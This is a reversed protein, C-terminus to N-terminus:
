PSIDLVTKRRQDLDKKLFALADKDNFMRNDHLYIKKAFSCSATKTDLVKSWDVKKNALTESWDIENDCLSLLLLSYCELAEFLASLLPESSLDFGGLFLEKLAPNENALTHLANIFEQMSKRTICKIPQIANKSSEPDCTGEAEAKGRAAEAATQSRRTARERARAQIKAAAIERAAKAEALRSWYRQMRHLTICLSNLRILKPLVSSIASLGEDTIDSELLFLKELDPHNTLYPVILLIVTDDGLINGRLELYLKIKCLKFALLITDLSTQFNFDQFCLNIIKTSLPIYSALNSLSSMAKDFNPNGFFRDINAQTLLRLDALLSIFQMFSELDSDSYEYFRDLNTQTLLNLKALLSMFLILYQPNTCEYFRDSNAQRSLQGVTLLELFRLDPRNSIVNQGSNNRIIDRFRGTDSGM